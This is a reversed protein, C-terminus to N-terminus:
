FYRMYILFSCYFSFSHFSIHGLSLKKKKEIITDQTLKQVQTYHLIISTNKGEQYIQLNIEVTQIVYLIIQGDCIVAHYSIHLTCFYLTDSFSIVNTIQKSKYDKDM